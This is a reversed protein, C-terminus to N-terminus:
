EKVGAKDLRAKLEDIQKQQAEIKKDEEQLAIWLVSILARDSLSDTFTGLPTEITETKEVFEGKENKVISTKIETKIDQRTSVAEPIFPKVDSTLFGLNIDSQSLGSEKNWQFTKPTIANIKSIATEIPTYPKIDTKTKPDSVTYLNGNGDIMVTGAGGIGPIKVSGTTQFQATPSTTGISFNGPTKKLFGVVNGGPRLHIDNGSDFYM